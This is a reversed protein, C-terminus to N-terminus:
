DSEHNIKKVFIIWLVIVFGYIMAPFAVRHALDQWQPYTYMLHGLIAIRLINFIFILISGTLAFTLSKTLSKGFSLIFAVFMIIVSVATCGEIIRAIYEGNIILKLGPENKLAATQAELHSMQFVYTVLKGTLSTIPDTQNSYLSLYWQYLRALVLYIGSFKAIFILTPKYTKLISLDPM